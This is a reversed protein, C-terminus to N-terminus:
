NNKENKNIYEFEISQVPKYNKVFHLDIVKLAEERSLYGLTLRLYDKGNNGVANWWFWKKVSPYYMKSGDKYAIIKIRYKM